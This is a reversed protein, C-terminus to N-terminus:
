HWGGNSKEIQYVELSFLFCLFNFSQTHVAGMSEDPCGLLGGKVINRLDSGIEVKKM